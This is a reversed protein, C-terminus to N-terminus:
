HPARELFGSTNQLDDVSGQGQSCFWLALQGLLVHLEEFLLPLLLDTHQRVGDIVDGGDIVEQSHWTVPLSQPASEESLKNRSVLPTWVHHLGENKPPNTNTCKM